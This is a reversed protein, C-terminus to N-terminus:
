IEIKLGDVPGHANHGLELDHDDQDLYRRLIVLSSHGMLRQLTFIDMGARLCELAFARRFDHLGPRQIGAKGARNKVMQELGKPTMRTGAHIVWLPDDPRLEGRKRLYRGIARRTKSGVFVIRRKNGKGHPIQIQGTQMNLEVVNMALLEARRVGTDLLTMLIAKDRIGFWDKECTLVLKAFDDMSIGPRPDTNIRPPNVKRIPNKWGEPEVEREWWLLFAKIVRWAAHVGGPNRGHEELYLLYGRLATADLDGMTTIKNGDGWAIFRRLEASYFDISNLTLRRSRRDIIFNQVERSILYTKETGDM